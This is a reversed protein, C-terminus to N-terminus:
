ALEAWIRTGNDPNIGLEKCVNRHHKRGAAAAIELARTESSAEVDYFGLRAPKRGAKQIMLKIEYTKM